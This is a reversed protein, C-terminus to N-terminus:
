LLYNTMVLDRMLWAPLRRGSVHNGKEQLDRWPPFTPVDVFGGEEVLKMEWQSNCQQALYKNQHNGRTPLLQVQVHTLWIMTNDLPSCLALIHLLSLQRYSVLLGNNQKPTPLGLRSYTKWNLALLCNVIISLGSCCLVTLSRSLM